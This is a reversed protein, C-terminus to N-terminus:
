EGLGKAPPTFMHLRDLVEGPDGIWDLAAMESLTRRGSLMRVLEFDNTRLTAIPEGVGLVWEGSPTALRVAPSLEAKRWFRILLDTLTAAVLPTTPCARYQPLGLAGLVDQEHNWVDIVMLNYRYGKEGALRQELELGRQAWEACLEPLARGARDAVQRATDEDTARGTLRGDLVEACVGALHAYTDQVTWAPLAPVPTGPQDGSLGGAFEIMRTRVTRYCEATDM